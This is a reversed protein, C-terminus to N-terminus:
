EAAPLDAGDHAGVHVGALRRMLSRTAAGLARGAQGAVAAVGGRSAAATQDLDDAQRKHQAALAARRRNLTDHVGRAAADKAKKALACADAFAHRVFPAGWRAAMDELRASTPAVGRLWGKAVSECVGFDAAILKRAHRPYLGRLWDACRAGLGLGLRAPQANKDGAECSARSAGPPAHDREMLM